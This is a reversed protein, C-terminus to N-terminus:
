EVAVEASFSMPKLNNDWWFIKIKQGEECDVSVPIHTAATYSVAKQFQNSEFIAIYINGSVTDNLFLTLDCSWNTGDYAVDNTFITGMSSSEGGLNGSGGPTM